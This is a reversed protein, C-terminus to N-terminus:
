VDTQYASNWITPKHANEVVQPPHDRNNELVKKSEVQARRRQLERYNTPTFKSRQRRQWVMMIVIAVALALTCM